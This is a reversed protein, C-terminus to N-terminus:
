TSAPIAEGCEPCKGQSARLDYGCSPCHGISALRRQRRWRYLWIAPLITTLLALSWHPAVLWQRTVFLPETSPGIESGFSFGGIEDLSNFSSLPSFLKGTKEVVDTWSGKLVQISGYDAVETVTMGFGIRGNDMSLSLTKGILNSDDNRFFTKQYLLGRERRMPSRAIPFYSWVWM